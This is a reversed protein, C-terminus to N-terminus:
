SFVVYMKLKKILMTKNRFKSLPIYSVNITTPTILIESNIKRIIIETTNKKTKKRLHYVHEKDNVYIQETTIEVPYIFRYTLNFKLQSSRIRTYCNNCYSDLFLKHEDLYKSFRAPNTTEFKNTKSNIKIKITGTYRIYPDIEIVSDIIVPKCFYLSQIKSNDHDKDVIGINFIIPSSCNICPSNYLIFDKVTLKKMYM